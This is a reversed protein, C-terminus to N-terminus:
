WDCLAPKGQTTTEIEQKLYHMSDGQQQTKEDIMMLQHLYAQYTEESILLEFDLLGVLDRELANLEESSVGGVFAYDATRFYGDNYLKEAIVLAALM